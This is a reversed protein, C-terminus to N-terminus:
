GRRRGEEMHGVAFSAETVRSIERYNESSILVPAAQYFLCVRYPQNVAQWIHFKEELSIKDQSLIVPPETVELWPQLMDPRVETRDGLVQAARGIIKQADEAKLNARSANNIFFMYHLRYPKPSQQLTSQGAPQYRPLAVNKEEEIHYLFLGLIYDQDKDGPDAIEIQAPLSILGPCMKERLLGILYKSIDAIISYEAM